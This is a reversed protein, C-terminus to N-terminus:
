KGALVDLARDLAEDPKTKPDDSAQVDPTIGGPKGDHPGLNRGKPTFYQGVTIDLAGGNALGEIEQFVGKGFTRTGVVTARDRDQLAGTVIESASATGRNVLVVVPVKADIADGSASYTRNPRSRGRTSVITGDRIFISSVLVGEQLLGGGNDRLDFVIGKAGQKLLRRVNQGVAAHAGSTFQALSVYGYKTGGRREVRKTSVPVSVSDRKVSVTRRKGDRVVVLKVATGSPGKILDTSRDSSLGKLSRGDAEVIQDGKQLGAKKAPGGDFVTVIRLGTPIQEVNLGVGEFEGNTSEEFAQYQSPDIYHSFRDKLSAVAATLSANLLDKRKVKRYYDGSIKDLAEDFVQAESDGVLSDRVFGPLVNPHGGAWIGFVLAVVVLGALIPTLLRRVVAGLTARARQLSAGHGATAQEAGTPSLPADLGRGGESLLRPRADM